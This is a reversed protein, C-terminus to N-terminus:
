VVQRSDWTKFLPIDAIPGFGSENQYDEPNDALM